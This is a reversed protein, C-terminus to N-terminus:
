IGLSQRIIKFEIELLVFYVFKLFGCMCQCKNVIKCFGFLIRFVKRFNDWGLRLVFEYSSRKGWMERIEFGIRQEIYELVFYSFEEKCIIFYERFIGFNIQM